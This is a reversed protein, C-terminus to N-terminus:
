FRVGVRVSFGRRSQVTFGGGTSYTAYVVFKLDPNADRTGFPDPWATNRQPANAYTTAGADYVQLQWASSAFAMWYQTGNTVPVSLGTQSFEGDASAGITINGSHYILAGPAGSGNDAYIGVQLNHSSSDTNKVKITIASITGDGTPTDPCKIAITAGQASNGHNTGTTYGITSM